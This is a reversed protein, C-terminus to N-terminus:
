WWGQRRAWRLLWLSIGLMVALVLVLQPIHTRDNVILNMGYVSAIATIPLTIAAIVALREMAVTMKTTVRTQYLEIVGIIFQLEGDALGRVRDFQEALDRAHRRAGESVFGELSAIRTQIDYAQAAMTRSTTLEHRLLFLKELLAEPRRFDTAMVQAELEPLRRAIDQVASSQRRALASGVAYALDQPTTPRLRGLEIRTRVQRTEHTAADLSVIPNRPGHVTVLYHEGVIEDLELVHVHGNEGALPAHLVAFLHEEYAHVTPVFNRTACLTRVMPHTDIPGTLLAEADADYDPVDVWVFGDDRALLAEIDGAPHDTIGDASVFSVQM